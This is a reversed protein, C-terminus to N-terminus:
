RVGFPKPRVLDFYPTLLSAVLIAFPAGDTYSGYSRILFVLIGCTLGYLIMALSHTPAINSETAIFFACLIVSGTFLHFTPTITATEALSHVFAFPIVVGALVGLVIQWRVVGRFLLYVGGVLLGGIQGAGLASIQRGLLLDVLSIDQARAVGLYKLVALPDEYDSALQMVNPDMFLPFSVFLIAWGILPASVPNDGLGGFLMKGFLMACAAGIVVLWWPAAAPLLFAFLVGTVVASFDHVTQRRHMVACCVVEVLVCVVVSLAVVRLAPLGWNILAMVLAPTLALLQDLSRKCVTRGCHWYPPASMAFLLSTTNASM